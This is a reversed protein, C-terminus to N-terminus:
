KWGYWASLSAGIYILIDLCLGFTRWATKSPKGEHVLRDISTTWGHFYAWIEYTFFGLLLTLGFLDDKQLHELQGRSAFIHITLIHAVSVTAFVSSIARALPQQGLSFKTLSSEYWVAKWQCWAETGCTPCTGEHESLLHPCRSCQIPLM